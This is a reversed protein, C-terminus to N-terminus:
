PAFSAFHKRELAPTLNVRAGVDPEVVCEYTSDNAHCAEKTDDQFSIHTPSLAVVGMERNVGSDYGPNLARDLQV